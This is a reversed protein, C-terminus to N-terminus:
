GRPVAIALTKTAILGTAMWEDPGSPRIEQQEGIADNDLAYQATPPGGKQVGIAGNNVWQKATL